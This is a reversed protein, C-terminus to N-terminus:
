QLWKKRLEGRVFVGLQGQINMKREARGSAKATIANRHHRMSVFFDVMVDGVEVFFQHQNGFSDIPPATKRSHMKTATRGIM